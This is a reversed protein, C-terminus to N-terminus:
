QLTQNLEMPKLTRRFGTSPRTSLLTFRETYVLVMNLVGGGVTRTYWVIVPKFKVPVCVQLVEQVPFRPLLGVKGGPALNVEHHPDLLPHLAPLPEPAPTLSLPISTGSSSNYM